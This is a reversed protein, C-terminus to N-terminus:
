RRNASSLYLLRWCRCGTVVLPEVRFHVRCVVPALVLPGYCIDYRDLQLPLPLVDSGCVCLNFHDNPDVLHLYMRAPMRGLAFRIILVRLVRRMPVM